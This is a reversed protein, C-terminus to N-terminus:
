DDINFAKRWLPAEARSVGLAFHKTQPSELKFVRKGLWTSKGIGLCEKTVSLDKLSVEVRNGLVNCAILKGEKVLAVGPAHTGNLAMMCKGQIVVDDSSLEALLKEQKKNLISGFLYYIVLAVSVIAVVILATEM